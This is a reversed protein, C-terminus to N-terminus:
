AEKEELRKAEDWFIDMEELTMDTLLRDNEEARKEIHAFRNAFRRNTQRLTAEADADFWRVLNVVAFLLDGLEAERHRRDAATLVEDLEERVKQIVPEIEKWDFGVRAARAQYSQAQALSPLSAPVGSLLGKKGEKGNDKREAAKIKEWNRLVRGSDEVKQNGFVHPHRRVIKTHIGRLVDAMRFEGQEEAIQAHMVIQLLLDGLEEQLSVPDNQDLASIVEYTEELLASRLSEHTQERDWPCGEPARLHAVLDQFADFSAEKEMGPLFLCSLLGLHQSRDIEYLRLTEVVPHSTGAAHVLKVPSDDPFVTMLTLKVNAAVQRSYIQSILVPFDPSFVPHHQDALELADYLILKPFPDIELLSFVPELFSLGELVRVPIGAERARRVIEPTTAEAVYPHGPVAYTVGGPREGLDLIKQIIREYVGDFTEGNEYYDDFSYIKHHDLQSVVPHFKTRLYIEDAQELWEFAQRTLLGADAPGLGVIVIGDSKGNDDM